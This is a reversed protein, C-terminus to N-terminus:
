VKTLGLASLIGIQYPTFGDSTKDPGFPHFGATRVKTEDKYESKVTLDAGDYKQGLTSSGIKTENNRGPYSVTANCTVTTTVHRMTFGYLQVLNDAATPSLISAINGVSGFWEALWSWPMANYLAAPTPLAGALLASAKLRWGVSTPNPIWYRYCANYWVRETNTTTRTWFTKAGFTSPTGNGGFVNAYASNFVTFENTSTNTDVLVTRRRIPKGNQAVLKRLQEDLSGALAVLKRLDNIFPKWGFVVNLYEHGLDRFGKIVKKIYAPVESLPLGWLGKFPILPLGDRAIETVGVLLDARPAGPRTRLYGNVSHAVAADELARQESPGVGPMVFPPCGAVGASSASVGVGNSRFSKLWEGQQHILSRRIVLFPGGGSWSGNRRKYHGESVCLGSFYQCLLSSSNGTGYYVPWHRYDYRPLFKLM